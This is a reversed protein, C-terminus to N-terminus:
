CVNDHMFLMYVVVVVKTQIAREMHVYIDTYINCISQM